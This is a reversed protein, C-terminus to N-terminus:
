AHSKSVEVMTNVSIDSEKRTTELHQLINDIREIDSQRTINNPHLWLHLIEGNEEIAKIGQKMKRVVPNGIFPEIAKNAFTEFTFLDLSAPINVLGYEDVEPSVTPPPTPGVTMSLAKAVSHIPVTDYWQKPKNGRYCTFGYEAILDRYGTNNRPFVFSELQIGWEDAIKTCEQLEAEVVEPSTSNTGFDVHSFTHCGIEHNVSAHQIAEILDPAFWNSKGSALGGPDRSFWGSSAPHNEHKGDCQELMLHGVVAWTAPIEYEDFLEVLRLWATRANNIRGHPLDQLDHFGWALEADLSIVVTGM